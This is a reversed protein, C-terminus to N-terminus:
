GRPRMGHLHHAILGTAVERLDFEEDSSVVLRKVLERLSGIVCAASVAPDVETSVLGGSIGASLHRSVYDHLSDDFKQVREAIRDHLGVAERFIIRTLPRNSVVTDLIREVTTQLQEELAPADPTTTVGVINSELHEFLDDLLELFIAEKGDFYLYFTGRAVGAARVVDSVTTDHYGRESFATLANTKIQARRAEKSARGRAVRGDVGHDGTM